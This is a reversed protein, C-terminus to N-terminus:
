PASLEVTLLCADLQLEPDFGTARTLVAAYSTLPAADLALVVQDAVAEAQAPTKGWCQVTLSATDDVVDGQLNHEIQHEATYVIYPLPQDPQVANLAIGQGVLAVLPSHAALLARFDTEISM